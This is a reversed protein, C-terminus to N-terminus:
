GKPQEKLDEYEVITERGDSLLGGLTTGKRENVLKAIYNNEPLLPLFYQRKNIFFNARKGATEGAIVHRVENRATRGCLTEVKNSETISSNKSRLFNLKRKKIKRKDGNEIARLSLHLDKHPRLVHGASSVRPPPTTALEGEEDEEDDSLIDTFKRRRTAATKLPSGFASDQSSESKGGDSEDSIIYTVKGKERLRRPAAM